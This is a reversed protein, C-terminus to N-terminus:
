IQYHSSPLSIKLTKWLPVLLLIKISPYRQFSYGGQPPPPYMKWYHGWLAGWSALGSFYQTPLCKKAIWLFIAEIGCLICFHRLKLVLVEIMSTHDYFNIPAQCTTSKEKWLKSSRNWYKGVDKLTVLWSETTRSLWSSQGFRLAVAWFICGLFRRRSRIDSTSTLLFM